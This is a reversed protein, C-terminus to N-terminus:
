FGAVTITVLKEPQPSLIQVEPRQTILAFLGMERAANQKPATWYLASYVLNNKM